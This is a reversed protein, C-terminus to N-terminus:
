QRQKPTTPSYKLKIKCVRSWNNAIKHGRGLCRDIATNNNNYKKWCGAIFYRLVKYGQKQCRKSDNPYIRPYKPKYRIETKCKKSWNRVLTKGREYCIVIEWSRGRHKNRCYSIYKKINKNAKAKCLRRTKTEKDEKAQKASDPYQPQWLIETNCSKSWVAAM